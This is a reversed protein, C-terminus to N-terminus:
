LTTGKRQKNFSLKAQAVQERVALREPTNNDKHKRAKAKREQKIRALREEDDRELLKDYYKPIRQKKGLNMATDYNRFDSEYKRYHDHGIGPRRSMLTFEPLIDVMEGDLTIRTYHEKAMDGTIKKVTYHSVYACNEPSGESWTCYGKEWLSSILGSTYITYREQKAHVKGDRPMWGFIILHYHPRDGKDGYEGVAFFRIKKPQLHKRLRKMFLQVHSKVLTGGTPLFMPDYTLTLFSTERHSKM